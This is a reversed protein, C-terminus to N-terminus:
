RVASAITAALVVAGLMRRFPNVGRVLEDAAWVLLAGRGIIKLATGLGGPRTSCSASSRPWCGSRSRRTRGSGRRHDRRDSSQPVALESGARRVLVSPDERRRAGDTRDRGVRDGPHRGGRAARHQDGRRVWEVGDPGRRALESRHRRPRPPEHLNGVFVGGPRLWSAIKTFLAAHQERPTHSISSFAVVGGLSAPPLDITHMDAHTLSVGPLAARAQALMGPSADFGAYDNRAALLRGVPVGTGCGLEVVREGPGVFAELKAAWERRVDPVISASWADYRPALTDYTPSYDTM